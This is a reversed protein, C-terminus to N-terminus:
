SLKERTVDAFWEENIRNNEAEEDADQGDFIGSKVAVNAPANLKWWRAQKKSPFRVVLPYIKNGDRFEARICWRPRVLVERTVAAEKRQWVSGLMVERIKAALLARGEAGVFDRDRWAVGDPPQLGFENAMARMQDRSGKEYAAWSTDPMEYGTSYSLGSM